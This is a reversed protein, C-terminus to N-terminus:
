KLLYIKGTQNKFFKDGSTNRHSMDTDNIETYVKYFYVGNALRDGFQDTGDWTFQSVNNGIRLDGIEEKLIERVIKGNMNSIQIKIKEPITEGTITFVFKMSNVVPNPYPYFNTITSQNIVEFCIELDANTNYNGTLDKSRLKIMYFGDELKDPKYSIIAKNESSTTATNFILKSGKYYIRKYNTEEEKKLFVELVSTDKLLLFQNEDKVLIRINPSPAVIERNIIHKEDFTVDLLPEKVDRNVTFDKRIQNNINYSDFGLSHDFELKVNNLGNLGLTPYKFNVTVSENPALPNITKFLKRIENRQATSIISYVKISDSSQKSVNQFGINWKISDGEQIQNSLFINSIDPNITNEAIDTFSVKWDILQAPTRKLNDSTLAKLKIFPYTKADVANLDLVDDTVNDILVSESGTKTVGIIQFSLEDEPEKTFNFYAKDWSKVPGINRSSYNGANFFPNYEKSLLIDQSRAPISSNYDATVETALSPSLGKQGFFLYPEGSAIDNIKLCGLLAFADKARQSMNKLNVNRGNLGVIYFGTPIRNIYSVLSDVGVSSSLNFFYQGTYIPPYNQFNNVSPFSFFDGTIPDLAVLTFSEFEYGAFALRGVRSSRFTRETTTPADDGRTSLTILHVTKEFDFKKTINNYIISKFNSANLSGNGKQYFGSNINSQFTFSGMQWDGGENIPVNLKARWFYTKGNIPLINITTKALANANLAIEKKWNSNFSNLTDIEFLYNKNQTFLDSAQVILDITSNSTISNLKPFLLNIGNSPIFLTNTNINNLENTEILKNNADLTVTFINDGQAKDKITEITFYVTDTNFIPKINKPAYNISINDKFTRKLSINVSDTLAKGKNKVIIGITISDLATTPKETKIFIANNEIYYDPKDPSYFKLAPDGQLNYQRSHMRNLIDNPNQYEKIASALNAAISKGYNQNFSNKYFINTFNALYSAVGEDSTAVWGIAGRKPEFLYKEGISTTLTNPNGALCGNIMYTLLSNNALENPEGFNIETSFNSGHGLFSLFNVEKNISSIIKEQLNNTIPLSVNKKITSIQAGFFNGTAFKGFNEQYAAWTLNENISTGGSIHLIGKRNINDVKTEYAKLKDVYDIVQKNTLAAIRSIALTPSLNSGFLPASYMNDSPPYGITPVLNAKIGELSRLEVNNIGKGLLLVYKVNPSTNQLYQVFNRIALPHNLGFYFENFIKNTTIVLPNYGSEKRYNKYIEAGSALSQHTIIIFDNPINQPVGTFKAEELTTNLAIAEDFLFYNNNQASPVIFNITSGVKEGTILHNNKFDIIFPSNLNNNTFTLLANQNFSNNFVLESLGQIDLNRKYDIKYFSPAQFDTIAGLDDVINYKLQTTATLNLSSFTKTKKVFGYGRFTSDSIINANSGLIELRYHHNRGTSNSSSANSRGILGFSFTVASGPIQNNISVNSILNSGKSIMPGALGEGERYESESTQSLIYAGGYYSNAFPVVSSVDISTESILNNKNVNFLTLRKGLNSDYTLFYVATDSYLNSYPNPQFNKNEYLPEDLKGDNNEGYFLVYDNQNFQLDDEGNIFIAQEVGNKFLKLFKPNISNLNSIKNQVANYEIKFVGTKNIKISYYTQNPKIWENSYTQQAITFGWGFCFVISLCIKILRM